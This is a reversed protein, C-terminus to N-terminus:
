SFKLIHRPLDILERLQRLFYTVWFQVEQCNLLKNQQNILLKRKKTYSMLIVKLTSTLILSSVRLRKENRKCLQHVEFVLVGTQFDEGEEEGVEAEEEEEEM